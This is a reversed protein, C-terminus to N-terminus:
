RLVADALARRFTEDVPRVTGTRVNMIWFRDAVFSETSGDSRKFDVLLRLDEVREPAPPDGVSPMLAQLKQAVGADKVEIRVPSVRRLVDATVSVRTEFDWPMWVLTVAQARAADVLLLLATAAGFGIIWRRLPM